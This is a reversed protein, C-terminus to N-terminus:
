SLTVAVTSPLGTVTPPRTVTLADSDAVIVAVAIEADILAATDADDTAIEAASLTACFEIPFVTDADTLFPATLPLPSDTVAVSEACITAVVTESETLMAADSSAPAAIAILRLADTASFVTASLTV